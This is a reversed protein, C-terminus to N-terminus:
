ALGFEAALYAYAQPSTSPTIEQTWFVPRPVYDNSPARFLLRGNPSETEQLFDRYDNDKYPYPDSDDMRPKAGNVFVFGPEVKGEGYHNVEDSELPIADCFVLRDFAEPHQWFFEEMQEGTPSPGYILNDPGEIANRPDTSGDARPLELWSMGLSESVEAATTVRYFGKFEFMKRLFREFSTEIPVNKPPLNYPDTM